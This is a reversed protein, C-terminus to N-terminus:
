KIIGLAQLQAEAPFVVQSIDFSLIAPSTPTNAFNADSIADLPKPPILGVSLFYDEYKFLPEETAPRV